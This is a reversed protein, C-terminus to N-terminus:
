QCGGDSTADDAIYHRVVSLWRPSPHGVLDGIPSDSGTPTSDTVTDNPRCRPTISVLSKVTYINTARYVRSRGNEVFDPM